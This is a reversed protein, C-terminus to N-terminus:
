LYLSKYKMVKRELLQILKEEKIKVDDIGENDNTSHGVVDQM